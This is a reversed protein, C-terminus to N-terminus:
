CVTLILDVSANQVRVMSGSPPIGDQWFIEPESPQLVVPHGSFPDGFLDSLDYWVRGSALNYAFVTMPSSSYLGDHVASIKLAVGGSEKDHRYTEAYRGFPFITAQPRVNSGVSWIYIPVKCHNVIVAQGLREFNNSIPTPTAAPLPLPVVPSSSVPFAGWPVDDAKSQTESTPISLALTALSIVSFLNTIKM